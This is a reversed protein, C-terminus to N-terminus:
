NQGAFVEQEPYVIVGNETIQMAVIKRKHKEGRMKLVEIAKERVDGVKFNYLVVVGDALFEEVGTQSFIEPIQKTETILLSTANMKELFRFLQEIYIRYTDEKSVFASAIATLSDLAIFEPKFGIPIIVPDLDILLEGKEKALMADVSRTIEFPSYRKVKLLGKKAYTKAPWGFDEMHQLLRAESEEFSMYFCKHGRSCHYMLTQLCMITKGSGAGGAIIVASGKPIGNSFLEDFGPVGTHTYRNPDVKRPQNVPAQAVAHAAPGRTELVQAEHKEIHGGRLEADIESKLASLDFGGSKKAEPKKAVKKLLNDTTAHVDLNSKIPVKGKTVFLLYKHDEVGIHHILWQGLFKRAKTVLQQIKISPPMKGTFASTLEKKYSIYFKVFNAHQIKQAGLGPYKIRKMYSEEYTFHENVYKGLFDITARITSMDAGSSVDSILRNTYDLLKKHQTDINIERVSLSSSWKFASTVFEKARTPPLASKNVPNKALNIPKKINKPIVLKKAPRKPLPKKSTKSALKKVVM